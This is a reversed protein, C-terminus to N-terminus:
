VIAGVTHQEVSKELSLKPLLNVENHSVLIDLVKYSFFWFLHKDLFGRHTSGKGVGDTHEGLNEPDDDGSQEEDGVVFAMFASPSPPIGIGVFVAEVQPFVHAVVCPLQQRAEKQGEWPHIFLRSFEFSDPM